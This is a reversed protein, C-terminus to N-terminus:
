IRLKLFQITQLHLFIANLDISLFQSNGVDGTEPYVYQEKMKLSIFGVRM